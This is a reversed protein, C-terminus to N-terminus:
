AEVGMLRDMADLVDAIVYTLAEQLDFSEAAEAEDSLARAIGDLLQVAAERSGPMAASLVDSM